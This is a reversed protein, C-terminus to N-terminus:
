PRMTWSAILRWAATRDKRSSQALHEWDMAYWGDVDREQLGTLLCRVKEMMKHLFSIPKTLALIVAHDAPCHKSSTKRIIPCRVEKWCFDRMFNIDALSLPRPCWFSFIYINYENFFCVYMSSYASLWVHKWPSGTGSILLFSWLNVKALLLDKDASDSVERGPCWRYVCVCVRLESVSLTHCVSKCMNLIPQVLGILWLCVFYSLSVHVSLTRGLWHEDETGWALSINVSKTHGLWHEDEMGWALGNVSKTHRLWHETMGGKRMHEMQVHSLRCLGSVFEENWAKRGWINSSYMLCFVFFVHWAKRGWTNWRYMLCFVFSRLCTMDHRGEEHTGGTCSVFPLLSSVFKNNWTKRGWTYMICLCLGTVFKDHWAKRGWISWRYMLCFVPICSVLSM